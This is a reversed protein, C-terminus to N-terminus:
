IGIKRGTFLLVITKGRLELESLPLDDPDIYKTKRYKTKRYKTM